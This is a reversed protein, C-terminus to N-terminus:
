DIEFVIRSGFTSYLKQVEIRFFQSDNEIVGAQELGDLLGKLLNDADPKKRHYAREILNKKPTSKPYKLYFIARIRGYSDKPIRKSKILLALDNKYREYEAPYYASAFGKKGKPQIIRIRPRPTPKPDINLTIEGVKTPYIFNLDNM